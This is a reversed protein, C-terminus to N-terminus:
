RKGKTQPGQQRASTDEALVDGFRDLRDRWLHEYEDLLRAAATTRKVNGAVLIERGSKRKTVLEASALVAVHKQVAAFSM